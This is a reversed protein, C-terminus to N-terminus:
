SYAGLIIHAYSSIIDKLVHLDLWHYSNTASWVKRGWLQISFKQALFRESVQTCLQFWFSVCVCVCVHPLCYTITTLNCCPWWDCFSHTHSLSNSYVNCQAELILDISLSVLKAHGLLPVRWAQFEQIWTCTGSNGLSGLLKTHMTSHVSFKHLCLTVVLM